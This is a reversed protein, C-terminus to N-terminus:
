LIVYLRQCLDTNWRIAKLENKGDAIGFGSHNRVELKPNSIDSKLNRIQTAFRSQSAFRGKAKEPLKGRYDFFALGDLVSKKLM